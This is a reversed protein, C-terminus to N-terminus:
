VTLINCNTEQMIGLLADFVDTLAKETSYYFTHEGIPTTPSQEIGKNIVLCYRQNKNGGFNMDKQITLISWLPVLLGDQNFLVMNKKPRQEQSDETDANNYNKKGM